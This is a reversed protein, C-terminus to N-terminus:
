NAKRREREAIEEEMLLGPVYDLLRVNAEKRRYLVMNM